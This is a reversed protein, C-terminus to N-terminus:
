DVNPPRQRSSNSTVQNVTRLYSNDNSANFVANFLQDRNGYGRARTIVSNHTAPFETYCLPQDYSLNRQYEIARAVWPEILATGSECVSSCVNDSDCVETKTCTVNAETVTKATVAAASSTATATSNALVFEPDTCTQEFSCGAITDYLAAFQNSTELNQKSTILNLIEAVSNGSLHTVVADLSKMLSSLGTACCSAAYYSIPASSDVRNAISTSELSSCVGSSSAAYLPLAGRVVLSSLLSTDETTVAGSLYSTLSQGCLGDDATTTTCMTRHLGNVIDTVTQPLTQGTPVILKAVEYYGNLTSCCTADGDLLEALVPLLTEICPGAKANMVSCFGKTNSSSGSWSALSTALDASSGSGSSSNSSLLGGLLLSFFESFAVSDDDDTSFLSSLTTLNCQSGSGSIAAYVTAINSAVCGRLGGTSPLIDLYEAFASNSASANCSAEDDAAAVQEELLRLYTRRDFSDFSESASISGTKAAFALPVVLLLLAAVLVASRQWGPSARPPSAMM